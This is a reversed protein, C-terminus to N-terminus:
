EKTRRSSQWTRFVMLGIGIFVAVFSLIVIIKIATTIFAILALIGKLVAIALAIVALISGIIGAAAKLVIPM